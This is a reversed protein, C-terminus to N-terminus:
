TVQSIHLNRLLLLVQDGQLFKLKKRVDKVKDRKELKGGQATETEVSDSTARHGREAKTWCRSKSKSLFTANM